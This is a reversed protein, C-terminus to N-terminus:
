GGEGEASAKRVIMSFAISFTGEQAYIHLLLLSYRPQDVKMREGTKLSLPTTHSNVGVYGSVYVAKAILAEQATITLFLYFTNVGPSRHRGM